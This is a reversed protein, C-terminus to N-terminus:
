GGRRPRGRFHEAESRVVRRRDRSIEGGVLDVALAVYGADLLAPILPNWNRRRGNHQHMLLVAPLLAGDSEAADGSSLDLSIPLWESDSRRDRGSRRDM